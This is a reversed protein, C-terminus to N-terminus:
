QRDPASRRRRFRNGGNAKAAETRAGTEGPRQLGGRYAPWGYGYQWIVDIDSARIAKGDALIQVGENIMPYLCRELIEQDSIKRGNIGKKAMFSYVQGTPISQFRSDSIVDCMPFYRVRGSPLFRQQM